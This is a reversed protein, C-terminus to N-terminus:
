YLIIQVPILKRDTNHIRIWIRISGYDFQRRSRSGYEFYLDPDMNLFFLQIRIQMFCIRIWM